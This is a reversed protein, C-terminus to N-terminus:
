TKSYTKEHTYELANAVAFDYTRQTRNVGGVGGYAM